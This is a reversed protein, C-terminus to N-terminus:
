VASPMLAAKPAGRAAFYMSQFFQPWSGTNRKRRWVMKSPLRGEFAHIAELAHKDATMGEVAFPLRSRVRSDYRQMREELKIDQCM